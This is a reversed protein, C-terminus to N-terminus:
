IVLFILRCSSIRSFIKKFIKIRCLSRFSFPDGLLIGYVGKGYRM